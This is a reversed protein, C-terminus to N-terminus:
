TAAYPYLRRVDDATLIDRMAYSHAAGTPIPHAVADLVFFQGDSVSEVVKVVRVDRLGPEYSQSANGYGYRVQGPQVEDCPEAGVHIEKASRETPQTSPVSLVHPYFEVIKDKGLCATVYGVGGSLLGDPGPIGDAISELLFCDDEPHYSSVLAARAKWGPGTLGIRVQGVVVSDAAKAGLRSDHRYLAPLAPAHPRPAAPNDLKMAIAKHIAVSLGVRAEGTLQPAIGPGGLIWCDERAQGDGDTPWGLWGTTSVRMGHVTFGGAPLPHGDRLVEVPFVPLMDKGRTADVVENFRVWATWVHGEKAWEALVVGLRKAHAYEPTAILPEMRASRSALYKESVAHEREEETAHDTSAILAWPYSCDIEKVSLTAVASWTGSSPVCWGRIATVAFRGDQEAQVWAVDSASAMDPNSARIQGVAVPAGRVWQPSTAIKSGSPAGLRWRRKEWMALWPGVGIKQVAKVVEELSAPGIAEAAAQIAAAGQTTIGKTAFAWVSVSAIQELSLPGAAVIRNLESADQPEEQEHM